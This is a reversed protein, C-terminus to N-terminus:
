PRLRAAMLVLALSLLSSLCGSGSSPPADPKPPALLGVAGDDLNLVVMNTDHFGLVRCPRQEGTLGAGFAGIWINHHTLADEAAQHHTRCLPWLDELAERGLRSYTTHHLEYDPAGCLACGKLYTSEAWRARTQRWHWSRLYDDYSRFGIRELLPGIAERQPRDSPLPPLAPLRELLAEADLGESSTRSTSAWGEITLIPLRGLGLRKRQAALEDLLSRLSAAQWVEFVVPEREAPSTLHVLLHVEDFSDRLLRPRRDPKEVEVRALRESPLVILVEKTAKVQSSGDAGFGVDSSTREFTLGGDHARLEGERLAKPEAPFGRLYDARTSSHEHSM